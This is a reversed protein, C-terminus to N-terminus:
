KSARKEMETLQNLCGNYDQRVERLDDKTMNYVMVSYMIGVGIALSVVGVLITGWQAKRKDVLQSM